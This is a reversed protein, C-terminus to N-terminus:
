AGLCNAEAVVLASSGSANLATVTWTDTTGSRQSDTLYIQNPGPGNDASGGGGGVLQEGAICSSTVTDEGGSPINVANFRTVVSVIEDAGVTNNAIQDGTLTEPQMDAFSLGHIDWGDLSDNAVDTGTLSANAVDVGRLAGATTDNAVDATRVHGNVIDDTFVTNSGALAYATGSTLVLFLAILGAWQNRVIQRLHASLM